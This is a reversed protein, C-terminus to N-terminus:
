LDKIPPPPPPRLVCGPGPTFVGGAIQDLNDESLESSDSPQALQDSKTTEDNM